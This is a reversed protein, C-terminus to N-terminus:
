EGRRKAQAEAWIDEAEEKARAAARVLWDAMRGSWEDAIREADQAVSRERNGSTSGDSSERQESM